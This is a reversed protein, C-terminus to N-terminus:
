PPLQGKARNDSHLSQRDSPAVSGIWFNLRRISRHGLGVEAQAVPEDVIM